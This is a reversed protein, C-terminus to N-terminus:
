AERRLTDPSPSIRLNPSPFLRLADHGSESRRRPILCDAKRLQPILAGLAERPITFSKQVYWGLSADHALHELRVYGDQGAEVQVRLATGPHEGPITALEQETPSPFVCRCPPNNAMM